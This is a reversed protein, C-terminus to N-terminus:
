EIYYLIHHFTHVNSYTEVVYTEYLSNMQVVFIDMLKTQCMRTACVMPHIVILYEDKNREFFLVKSYMPQFNFRLLHVYSGLFRNIKRLIPWSVDM